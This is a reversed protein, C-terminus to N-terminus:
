EVLEPWIEAWNPFLVKRSLEGDTAKEFKAAQQVPIPRNGSYLQYVFNYSLGTRQALLPIRGEEKDCWERLLNKKM